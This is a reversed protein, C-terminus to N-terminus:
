GVGEAKIGRAARDLKDPDRGNLVVRPGEAALLRATAFGLGSSAGTVLARVGALSREM